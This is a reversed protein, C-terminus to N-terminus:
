RLKGGGKQTTRIKKLRARAKSIAVQVFGAPAQTSSGHNLTEIYSAGNTVAVMDQERGLNREARSVVTDVASTGSSNSREDEETIYDPRRPTANWASEAAGTDIPTAEAADEALSISTDVVAMRANEEIIGPLAQLRKAAAGANTRMGIAM